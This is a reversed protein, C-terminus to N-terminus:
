LKDYGLVIEEMHGNRDPMKLSVIIGGYNTVIMEAGRNNIMSFLEVVSGDPLRGFESKMIM